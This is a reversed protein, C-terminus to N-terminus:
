EQFRIPLPEHEAEPQLEPRGWSEVRFADELNTGETNAGELNALYLNTGTVNAGVLTAGKLNASQLNAAQLRVGRLTAETLNAGKLNAGDLYAENLDAFMLNARELSAEPFYAKSVKANSLDAGVLSANSFNAGRLDAGSLDALGFTAFNAAVTRLDSRKFDAGYFDGIDLNAGALRLFSLCGAALSSEPGARQGQIRRFWAGFLTPDAMEFRSPRKTIRACANLAVLLAEEANRSQFLSEKFPGSLVQEAPMGHQLMYGFLKALRDQNRPLKKPSVRSM